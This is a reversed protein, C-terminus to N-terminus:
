KKSKIYFEVSERTVKGEQYSVLEGQPNFLYSTPLVQVDGIQDALDYDGIVLPYSVHQKAVFEKVSKETSELAVGIVVLDTKKHADHLSVLDPIEERCPPCWTAWFNVLVWKGRYDQLRQAHGQMDKFVFPQASAVSALLALAVIVLLQSFYTKM